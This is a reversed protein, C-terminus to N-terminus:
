RGAVGNAKLSREEGECGSKAHFVIRPFDVASTKARIKEFYYFGSATVPLFTPVFLM